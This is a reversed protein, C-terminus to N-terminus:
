SRSKSTRIGGETDPEADASLIDAVFKMGARLELANALVCVIHGAALDDTDANPNESELAPPSSGTM